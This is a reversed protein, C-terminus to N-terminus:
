GMPMNLYTLRSALHPSIDGSRMLKISEIM